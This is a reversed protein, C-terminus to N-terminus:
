EPRQLRGVALAARGALYAFGLGMPTMALYYVATWTDRESGILAQMAKTLFLIVGFSFFAAGSWLLHPTARNTVASGPRPPRLIRWVQLACFASMLIAVALSGHVYARWAAFGAVTLIVLRAAASTHPKTHLSMIVVEDAGGVARKFSHFHGVDDCSGLPHRLSHHSQRVRDRSVASVSCQPMHPRKPGLQRGAEGGFCLAMV